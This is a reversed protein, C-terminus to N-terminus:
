TFPLYLVFAVAVLGLALIILALVFHRMKEKGCAKLYLISPLIFLVLPSRINTITTVWFNVDGTLSSIVMAIIMVCIGVHCWVDSNFDSGHGFIDILVYRVPNLAVPCTFIMMITLAIQAVLTFDNDEYYSLILAGTNLEFFTFYSLLGVINYVFWAIIMATRYERLFNNVTLNRFHKLGPYSMPLILYATLLSDLATIFRSDFRFYAIEDRPDFGDREVYYIFYYIFVICLFSLCTVKIYCIIAILKLSKSSLIPIYFVIMVCFFLFFRDIVWSPPDPAFKTIIAVLQDIVFSIYSKLAMLKSIMSISACIIVTKEGFSKSWIAEFTSSKTKVGAKLFLYFAYTSLVAIITSLIPTLIAGAKYANGLRMVGTGIAVNLLFAITSPYDLSNKRQAFIQLDDIDTNRGQVLYRDTKM